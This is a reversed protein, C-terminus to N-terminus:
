PRTPSRRSATSCATTPHCRSSRARRRSSRTGAWASTSCRLSRCSTSGCTASRPSRGCSATRSSPSSREGYAVEADPPLDVSSTISTTAPDVSELRDNDPDVVFVADGHQLLDSAPSATTISGNLEDIQKNLRGGLLESGNTVWVDRSTLDVDSVPFGPHLAAVTLTGGAILAIVTASAITKRRARWVEAIVEFGGRTNAIM